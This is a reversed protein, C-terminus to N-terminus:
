PRAAITVIRLMSTGKVTGSCRSDFSQLYNTFM